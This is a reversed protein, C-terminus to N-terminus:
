DRAVFVWRDNEWKFLAFYSNSNTRWPGFDTTAINVVALNSLEMPRSIRVIFTTSDAIEKRYNVVAQTSMYKNYLRWKKKENQISLIDNIKKEIMHGNASDTNNRIEINKECMSKFQTAKITPLNLSCASILQFSDDHASQIHEFVKGLGSTDFGKGESVKFVPCCNFHEFKVEDIIAYKHFKSNILEFVASILKCNDQAQAKGIFLIILIFLLYYKM